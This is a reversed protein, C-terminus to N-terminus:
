YILKEYYKFTTFNCVNLMSHAHIFKHLLVDTFFYNYTQLYYIKLQDIKDFYVSVFYILNIFSKKKKFNLYIASKFTYM